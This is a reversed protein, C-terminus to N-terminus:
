QTEELLYIGDEFEAPSQRCSGPELIAQKHNGNGLPVSTYIGKPLSAGGLLRIHQHDIDGINLSSIDPIAVRYTFLASALLCAVQLSEIFPLTIKILTPNIISSESGQQPQWGTESVMPTEYESSAFVRVAIEAILKAVSTTNWDKPRGFHTASQLNQFEFSRNTEHFRGSGIASVTRAVEESLRRTTM